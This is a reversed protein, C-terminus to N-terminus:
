PIHITECVNSVMESEVPLLVFHEGDKLVNEVPSIDVSSSLTDNSQLLSLFCFLQIINGSLQRFQM